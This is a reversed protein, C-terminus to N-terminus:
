CWGGVSFECGDRKLISREFADNVPHHTSPQLQTPPLRTDRRHVGTAGCARTARATLLYGRRHLHCTSARLAKRTNLTLGSSVSDDGCIVHMCDAGEHGQRRRICSRETVRREKLRISVGRVVRIVSYSWEDCEWGRHGM